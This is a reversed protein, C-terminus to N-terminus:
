PLLPPKLTFPGFILLAVATKAVNPVSRVTAVQTIWGALTFVQFTDIRRLSLRNAYFQQSHSGSAMEVPSTAAKLLKRSAGANCEAWKGIFARYDPTPLGGCFM